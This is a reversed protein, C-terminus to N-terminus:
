VMPRVRGQEVHFARLPGDDALSDPMLLDGALSTVFIQAGLPHLAAVFRRQSDRDLESGLDDIMVVPAEGRIELYYAAQALHLGMALLRSEGRSLAARAPKGSLLLALDARQPGSRTFGLRIDQLRGARLVGALPEGTEWGRRYEFTVPQSLLAELYGAIFGSMTPLHAARLGELREGAEGLQRDWADLTASEPSERLLANRQRLVRQFQQYASLYDQEVHFLVWDLLRRRLDAGDTLLRVCDPAIFV